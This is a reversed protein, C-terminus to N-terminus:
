KVRQRLSINTAQDVEPLDDEDKLERKEKRAKAREQQTKKAKAAAAAMSVATNKQERMRQAQFIIFKYMLFAQLTCVAILCNLRILGTNFNGAKFDLVQQDQPAKALGYWFTLVALIVSAFRVMVFLFDGLKFIKKAVSSKEAYALIRCGHYVAEVLYHIFLLVICIRTFRMIYAPVIFALYLCAYQIKPPMDEKKTKQFYLEPFVHLWYAIQTIFFFKFMFTMNHPYVDWLSALNVMNERYIIDGAWFLSILYFSFLQGSEDFKAHKIKSLHLKRNVKDLLYEQIIAHMVIAILLYFSIAPVDKLGPTYFTLDQFAGPQVEVPVSVNHSLAIFVSALPSTVQFMLGLVFVMAVCSVIDAHNQIVFEHSFVPPNKGSKKGKAVM